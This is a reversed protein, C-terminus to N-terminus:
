VGMVQDVEVLKEHMNKIETGIKCTDQVKVKEKNSTKKVRTTAVTYGSGAM